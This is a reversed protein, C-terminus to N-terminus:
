CTRALSARETMGASSWSELTEDLEPHGHVIVSRPEVGVGFQIEYVGARFPGFAAVECGLEEAAMQLSIVLPTDIQHSANIVASIESLVAGFRQSRVSREYRQAGLVAAMIRDAAVQLMVREADSVLRETAWACELVGFLAGELYMPVGFMAKVGFEKHAPISASSAVVDGVWLAEGAAAVKSAFGEDSGM